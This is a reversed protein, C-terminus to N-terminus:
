LQENFREVFQQPDTAPLDPRVRYVSGDLTTQGTLSLLETIASEEVLIHGSGAWHRNSGSKKVGSM